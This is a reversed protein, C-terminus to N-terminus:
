GARMIVLTMDDHQPFGNVFRNVDDLVATIIEKVPKDRNQKIVDGLRDESYEELRNNMAESIGDTYFIILDGKNLTIKEVQLTRNFIQGNEIGLAIGRPKLPVINDDSERLLLLPNHGARCYNLTRTHVDVIGIFLTVFSKKEMM